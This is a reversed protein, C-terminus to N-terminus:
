DTWQLAKKSDTREMIGKEKRCQGNKKSLILFDPDNGTKMVNNTHIMRDTDQAINEAKSGKFINQHLTPPVVSISIFSHSILISPVLQFLAHNQKEYQGSKDNRQERGNSVYFFFSQQPLDPFPDPVLFPSECVHVEDSFWLRLWSCVFVVPSGTRGAFHVPLRVM